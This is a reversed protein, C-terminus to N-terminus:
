ASSRRSAAALIRKSRLNLITKEDPPPDSRKPGEGRPPRHERLTV